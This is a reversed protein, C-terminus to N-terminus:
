SGISNYERWAYHSSTESVLFYSVVGGNSTPRLAVVSPVSEYHPCDLKSLAISTFSWVLALKSLMLM